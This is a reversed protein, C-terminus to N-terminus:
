KFEALPRQLIADDHSGHCATFRWVVDRGFFHRIIITAPCFSAHPENDGLAGDDIM